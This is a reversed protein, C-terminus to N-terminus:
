NRPRFASCSCTMAVAAIALKGIGLKEEDKVSPAKDPVETAAEETPFIEFTLLRTAVTGFIDM